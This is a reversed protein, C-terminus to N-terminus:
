QESANTHVANYYGENDDDSENNCSCDLYEFFDNKKPKIDGCSIDQNEQLGQSHAELNLTNVSSAIM